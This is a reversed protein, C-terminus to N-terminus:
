PKRLDVCVVQGEANRCYVRGNSLV